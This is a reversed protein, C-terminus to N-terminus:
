RLYRLVQSSITIQPKGELKHKATRQQHMTIKRRLFCCLALLRHHHKDQTLIIPYTKSILQVSLKRRPPQLILQKLLNSTSSPNIIIFRKKRNNRQCCKTANVKANDWEYVLIVSKNILKLKKNSQNVFFLKNNM